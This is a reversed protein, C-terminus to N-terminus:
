NKTASVIFLLVPAVLFSFSRSTELGLKRFEKEYERTHMFDSILATGGPKLIRVIERCAMVRGSKSKINHICLNSLIYDFSNEPFPMNQADANIIEVKDKVAELEANRLAAEGSNGSLDSKNWIDIGISRGSSLRKAAGIMLLGKGTGIDLVHEDGRWQLMNLMRNRHRFKEVKIYLFILLIIIVGTPAISLIIGALANLFENHSSRLFLGATIMAIVLCAIFLGMFPADIGYKPKKRPVTMKKFEHFRKNLIPAAPWGQLNDHLAKKFFGIVRM